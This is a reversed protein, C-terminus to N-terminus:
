RFMDRCMRRCETSHVNMSCEILCDFYDNQFDDLTDASSVTNTNFHNFQVMQNSSVLNHM